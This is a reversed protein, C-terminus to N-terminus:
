ESGSLDLERRGIKNIESCKKTNDGWSPKIIGLPKKGEVFEVL